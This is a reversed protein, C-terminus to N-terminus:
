TDRQLRTRQVLLPYILSVALTTLLIATVGLLWYAHAVNWGIVWRNIWGFGLVPTANLAAWPVFIALASLVRGWSWRFTAPRLIVYLVVTEVSLWPLGHMMAETPSGEVAHDKSDLVWNFQACLLLGLLWLLVFPLARLTSARMLVTTNTVGLTRTTGCQLLRSLPAGCRM